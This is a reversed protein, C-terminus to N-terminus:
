RGFPPADYGSAAAAGAGARGAAVGGGEGGGAVGLAVGVDGGGEGFDEGDITVVEGLDGGAAVELGAAEAGAVGDGGLEGKLAGGGEGVVDGRGDEGV